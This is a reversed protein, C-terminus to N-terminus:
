TRSDLVKQTFFYAGIEDVEIGLAASWTLIDGTLVSAKHNLKNSLNSETIGIEKAFARRTGFKETIRGDLKSYDFTPKTM